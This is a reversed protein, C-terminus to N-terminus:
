EEQIDDPLDKGVLNFKSILQRALRSDHPRRIFALHANLLDHYDLIKRFESERGAAQEALRADLGALRETLVAELREGLEARGNINATLDDRWKADRDALHAELEALRSFLLSDLNKCFVEIEQLEAGREALTADLEALRMGLNSSQQELQTLELRLGHQGLLWLIGRAGRSLRARLSKPLFIRLSHLARGARSNPM